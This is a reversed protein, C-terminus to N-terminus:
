PTLVKLTRDFIDQYSGDAKMSKLADALRPALEAHNRHVYMYMEVSALPPEHV